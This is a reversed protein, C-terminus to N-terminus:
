TQSTVNVVIQGSFTGAAAKRFDNQDLQVNLTFSTTESDPKFEKKIQGTEGLKNSNMNDGNELTAVYSIIERDTLATKTEGDAGKLVLAGPTVHLNHAHELLNTTVTIQLSETLTDKNFSLSGKDTSIGLEGKKELELLVTASESLLGKTQLSKKKSKRANIDLVETEDQVAYGVHPLALACLLATKLLTKM